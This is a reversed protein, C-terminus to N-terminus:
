NADARRFSFRRHGVYSLVTLALTIGAQALIRGVGAGVLVPLLVANIGLATLYVTEFRALDRLLHGTVKFVFKRYLAFAILVAIVHSCVLTVLSGAVENFRADVARGITLDFAVFLGFGVATNVSGVLLFAVRQDQVLRLLLGPEGTSEQQRPGLRV